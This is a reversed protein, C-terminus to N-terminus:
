LLTNEPTPHYSEDKVEAQLLSRIWQCEALIADMKREMRLLDPTPKYGERVTEHIKGGFKSYDM